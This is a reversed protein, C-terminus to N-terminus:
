KREHPDTVSLVRDGMMTFVSASVPSFSHRLGGEAQRSYAHPDSALRVSIGMRSMIRSHARHHVGPRTFYSSKVAPRRRIV